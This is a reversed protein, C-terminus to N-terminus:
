AGTGKKKKKKPTKAPPRWAAVDARTMQAGSLQADLVGRIAEAPSIPFPPEPTAHWQDLWPELEALGALLPTQREADWAEEAVREVLLRALARAQEAHDWGAWGVVLSTDAGAECGPYSVFREKPVDLKGRAQWYSTTVFDKTTYKPPVPITVTEGADERRQLDWVKEWEARKRLGAETYRLAALYPVAQDAVLPAIVAQLNPDQAGTLVRAAEILATDHRLAMAVQAVSRVRPGQADSWLAPDELRDLIWDSVARKEMVEWSDASWRRKFEPRELLRIAKVSEMADLRRQVTARYDEPWDSPIETIPSSGHRDFWATQEEGAAVQRALAIEFAREGLAIGPTEGPHTLDDDILGYLRYCEWDLEEQAAIM